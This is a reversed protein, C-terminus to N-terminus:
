STIPGPRPTSRCTPARWSIRIATNPASRKLDIMLAYGRHDSGWLGAEAIESGKLFAAPAGPPPPQYVDPAPLDSVSACAALLALLAM